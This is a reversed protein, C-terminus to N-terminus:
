VEVELGEAEKEELITHKLIPFWSLSQPMDEEDTLQIFGDTVDGVLGLALADWGTSVLCDFELSCSTIKDKM